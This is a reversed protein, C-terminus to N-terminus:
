RFVIYQDSNEVDKMSTAVKLDMDVKLNYTKNDSWEFKGEYTSKIDSVIDQAARAM